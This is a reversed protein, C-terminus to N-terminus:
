KYVRGTKKNRKGIKRIRSYNARCHCLPCKKDKNTIRYLDCLPCKKDKNTIRYLDCMYWEYTWWYQKYNRLCYEKRPTIKAIDKIHRMTRASRGDVM